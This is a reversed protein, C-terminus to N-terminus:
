GADVAEESSSLTQMHFQVPLNLGEEQERTMKVEGFTHGNFVAKNKLLQLLRPVLEPKLTHGSLSLFDGGESIKLQKLWLGEVPSEALGRFYASYPQGEDQIELDLLRSLRRADRLDGSLKDRRAILLQNVEKPQLQEKVEELKALMHQNKQDILQVRQNVEEVQYMSFLTALLMVAAAILLIGGMVGASFPERKPRFIPQYLNVQQILKDM